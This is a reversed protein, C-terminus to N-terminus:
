KLVKEGDVIYVRNPNNELGQLANEKRVNKRVLVGNLDYVNVEKNNNTVEKISNLDNPFLLINKNSQAAEENLYAHNATVSIDEATDVRYFGTQSEQCQLVYSNIPAYIDCFTGTLLGSTYSMNETDEPVGSFTYEGSEGNVIYPTNAEISNVQTLNLQDGNLESCSNFKLQSPIEYDFPLMFTAWGCESVNLSFEKTLRYLRFHDFICWDNTVSTTKKVGITATGDTVDFELEQTYLGNAFAVSADTMQNPILGHITNVCSPGNMEKSSAEEFISVLPQTVDNAYLLANLKENGNKRLNAADAYGGCRYFGQMVVKYRGNPLGTLEQYVNFTTNWKEACLNNAYGGIAPTGKWASGSNSNEFGADIIKNSFEDPSLPNVNKGVQTEEWVIENNAVHVFIWANANVSITKTLRQGNAYIVIDVNQIEEKMNNIYVACSDDEAQYATVNDAKAYVRLTNAFSRKQACTLTTSSGNTSINTSNTFVPAGDTTIINNLTCTETGLFNSVLIYRVSDPDSVIVGNWGTPVTEALSIVQTSLQATTASDVNNYYIIHRKDIVSTSTFSRATNSYAPYIRAIYVSNSLQKDGFAMKNGDKTSVIGIQNDINVWNSNFTKLSAGNTQIRGKNYYLTRQEKTFPDVSIAMLGGYEGTITGNTKGKVYDMYIFANGPTSYISFNNDITKDNVDLRGNMTYSNGNLEYIGNATPTANTGKGSVTYWGLINGTNNAKYPVIIKNMDPRNSAVYGTYSGLGTSWSFVSFRDPTNARVINQTTFLHAQENAKSFDKWTTPTMDKTSALEHMLYTMMVRHGEVGMRRPGIDSNLLWSGDTTTSQRAKIHKYAMNELMLADPDRLFCALTSYSTIQDYLFMSWDNGNPMALEGDALALHRLVHDMVNQNNHMLANTKWKPNEGQFMLLALNAEGLEQIVVNQYSTHFYNHNQLTYDNYLNPGVYLDSITTADYDPDIITNDNADNVQSYSNIAFERLRKYWQPALDDNPYLGLACALVCAEWGNEESKTDGNFGTPISRGLEYNCEAKIMNYIYQKQTDSLETDLFYSSYALSMTWLSSEWVADSTSLSGWYANNSTIKLKNAKHTSYGFVLSKMAMDKVDTWTIGSPLTVKGQGYKYLFACLMSFDANTRVGDENNQGASNAQFYGCAENVSNTAVCNYWINKAYRMSNAIMQLLDNQMTAENVFDHTITGETPSALEDETGGEINPKDPNITGNPLKTLTFHDYAICSGGSLWTMVSSITISSEEKLIFQLSQESWASSTMIGTSGSVYSITADALTASKSDKITVYANSTASNAYFAKTYFTIKYEGATLPTFSTQKLESSATTWGVRQYYAYSGDKMSTKGFNNDTNCDASILLAVGPNTATWGKPSVDWGRLDSGGNNVINSSTSTCSSADDEFSPNSFYTETVNEQAYGSFCFLCVGYVVLALKKITTMAILNLEATLSVLFSSPRM